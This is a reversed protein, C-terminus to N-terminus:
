IPTLTLTGITINWTPDTITAYNSTIKTDLVVTSTGKKKITIHFYWDGLPLPLLQAATASGTLNASTGIAFPSVLFSGMQMTSGSATSELYLLVDIDVTVPTNNTLSLGWNLGSVGKVLTATM